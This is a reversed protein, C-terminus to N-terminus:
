HRQKQLCGLLHLILGRWDACRPQLAHLLEQGRVHMREVWVMDMEQCFGLAQCCHHMSFFCAWTQTFIQPLICCCMPGRASPVTGCDASHIQSVSLEVGRKCLIEKILLKCSLREHQPLDLPTRDASVDSLCASPKPSATAGASRWPLALCRSQAEWRGLADPQAHM